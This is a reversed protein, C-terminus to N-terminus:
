RGALGDGHLEGCRHDHGLERQDHVPRRHRGRLERRPGVDGDREGHVARRRVDQGAARRVHDVARGQRHRAHRQSLGPLQREGADGGGRLQRREHPQHGRHREPQLRLHLQQHRGGDDDRLRVEGVRQVDAGLQRADGNGRGERHGAHGHREAGHLEPQRALGRGRLQRGRDAGDGLRRVHALRGRARDSDDDRDREAGLRQVDARSGHAVADGRGQERDARGDQDRRQLQETAAASVSLTQPGANLVAGLAPTYTLAGGGSTTSANLQASSLATGYTIAGPATWTIVQDAKKAGVTAAASTVDQYNTNGAMTATVSCTGTGANITVTSGANTCAGSATYTVAGRTTGGATGVAFTAGFPQATTPMGTVSLAEQSAKAITLTGTQTGSYNPDTSAVSVGYTGANTPASVVTGSEDRYTVAYAVSAPTPTVTVAKASGNYATTNSTIAFSASAPTIVLTGTASAGTYDTNDLSATVAYSGANIPSTVAVSGQAYSVSVGSLGAPSTTVTANRASGNYTQELSGLSLTASAKAVSFSQMVSTAETYSADGAQSATVTCTGAGTITLASGSVTCSGSAAYSVALGSSATAGLTPAPNGFTIGALTGFTVTQSAKNIVLKLTNDSATSFNATEAYNLTIQYGATSAGLGRPDVTASFAGTTADIAASATLAGGTGNVTVGVSGAAALSGSKLTGSITATTAGYTVGPASLAGFSPTAKAISLSGVQSGQYNPDNVTATVAYSGAATPSTVPASGQAYAINVTLGAPTTTATAAKATGDYTLGNPTTLTITATAKAAVVSAPPSTTVSFNADAAKTASLSCSGAGSTMTVVGTTAVVSCAGGAAAAFTVAGTGSGGSAGITFTANYPQATTPVGTLTLAAQSAPDVRLSATGSSALLTSTAAFSASVGTAYTGVAITGLSANSITAVGSTNTTATVVASGNLSFAVTAGSVGVAPSGSTLTASLSTTGGYTGTAAGVTLATAAQSTVTVQVSDKASAYTADGAYSVFAWYSGPTAPLSIGTSFNGTNGTGGSVTTVTATNTGLAVSVVRGGLGSGGTLLRGSITTSGGVAGSAPSAAINTFDTAVRITVQQTSQDVGTSAATLTPTGVNADRYFFSGRNSGEPINIQTVAGSTSVCDSLTRYFQGGGSASNSSLTVNAGGATANGAPNSGNMFQVTVTPSCKGAGITFTSSTFAISKANNPPGDTFTTQASRGSTQGVATMVFRVDLHHEEPAWSRDVFKGDADAKVTLTQDAHVQPDEHLTIKITEGPAYGSGTITVTDGPAYDDRDTSVVAGGTNAGESTVLVVQGGVSTGTQGVADMSLGAAGTPLYFGFSAMNAYALASGNGGTLVAIGATTLARVSAYSRLAPDATIRMGTIPTLWAYRASVEDSQDQLVVLGPANVTAHGAGAWVALNRILADKKPRTETSLGQDPTGSWVARRGLLAARLHAVVASDRLL